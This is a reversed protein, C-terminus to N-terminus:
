RCKPVSPRKWGPAMGEASSTGGSESNVGGILGWSRRAIRRYVGDDVPAIGAIGDRAELIRTMAHRSVQPLRV